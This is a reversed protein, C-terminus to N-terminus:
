LEIADAYVLRRGPSADVMGGLARPLLEHEEIVVRQRLQGRPALLRAAGSWVAVTASVQTQSLTTWPDDAPLWPDDAEGQSAEVRVRLEAALPSSAGGRPAPGSVSVRVLQPDEPDEALWALREPALQVFDALATRSVEVGAVSRPQFRALALRVFPFYADGTDLEIDSFWLGREDDFAVEHGAVALTWPSKSPWALGELTVGIRQACRRPLHHLSPTPWTTASAWIPDSGWQTACRQLAPPLEPVAEGKIWGAESSDISDYSIRPGHAVIVGLLEGDGSSFWPRRLYVRLGQGRRRSAVGGPADRREWGFTPIVYEVLPAAPRATSLVDVEVPAIAARTLELPPGAGETLFNERFRSTATLDYAVRRYRTDGLEHPLEVAIAAARRDDILPAGVQGARTRWVDGSPSKGDDERDRWRAVVDVRASSKADVEITAALAAATEGAGRTVQLSAFAPRALPQQVAHVLELERAPTLAWLGGSVAWARAIELWGKPCAEEIWRWVGLAALAEPGPLRSSVRVRAQEGKPLAVSLTRTAADWSPPGSGERLAVRLPQTEPWTLACEIELPADAGPLGAI